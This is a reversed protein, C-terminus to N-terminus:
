GGNGTQKMAEQLTKLCEAINETNADNSNAEEDTIGGYIQASFRLGTVWLTISLVAMLTTPIFLLLYTSWHIKGPTDVPLNIYPIFTILERVQPLSLLGIIFITIAGVVSFRLLWKSAQKTRNIVTEVQQTGQTHRTLKDRTLGEQHREQLSNSDASTRESASDNGWDGNEDYADRARMDNADPADDM